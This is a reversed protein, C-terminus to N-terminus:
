LFLHVQLAFLLDFFDILHLIFDLSELEPQLVWFFLQVMRPAIRACHMTFLFMGQIREPKLM